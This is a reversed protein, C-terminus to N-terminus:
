THWGDAANPAIELILSSNKQRCEFITCLKAWVSGRWIGQSDAYILYVIISILFKAEFRLFRWPQAIRALRRCPAALARGWVRENKEGTERPQANRIREPITCLKACLGGRRVERIDEYILCVIISILFQSRISFVGTSQANRRRAKDTNM